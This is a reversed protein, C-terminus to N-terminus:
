KRKALIEKFRVPDTNIVLEAPFSLEDLLALARDFVGVDPAVHADSGLVVMVGHKACLPLLTHYNERTNERYHSPDLSSNNVELLVGVRKAELVLAEYDVPIRGDDPHGIISVGPKQMTGLFARTNEARSGGPCIVEHFSVIGIDMRDLVHQKMSLSGNYDTIDLEAGYLMEVGYLVKDLNAYEYFYSLPPADSMCPAHETIALLSLGREAAFQANELITSYAHGSALTHTHADLKIQM